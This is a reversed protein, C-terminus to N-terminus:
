PKEIKDVEAIYKEDLNETKSERIKLKANEALLNLKDVDAQGIDKGVMGAIYKKIRDIKWVADEAANNFEEEGWKLLQLIQEKTLM